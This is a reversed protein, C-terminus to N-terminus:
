NNKPQTVKLQRIQEAPDIIDDDEDDDSDEDSESPLISTWYTDGKVKRTPSSSVIGLAELVV